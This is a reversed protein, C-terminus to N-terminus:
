PVTASVYNSLSSAQGNRDIAAVAFFYTGASSIDLQTSTTSGGNIIQTAGQDQSSGDQFYYVEYGAIESLALPTNDERTSPATWSLKVTHAGNQSGAKEASSGSATNGTSGSSSSNSTPPTPSASTGGTETGGGGSGGGGGGCAALMVSACLIPLFKRIFTISM